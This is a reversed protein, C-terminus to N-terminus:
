LQAQCVAPLLYIGISNAFKCLLIWPMLEIWNRIQPYLERQQSNNWTENSKDVLVKGELAKNLKRLGLNKVQLFVNIIGSTIYIFIIPVPSPPRYCNTDTSDSVSNTCCGRLKRVDWFHLNMKKILLTKFIKIFYICCLM